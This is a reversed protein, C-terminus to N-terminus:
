AWGGNSVTTASNSLPTILLYNDSALTSSTAGTLASQFSYSPIITGATTIRLIGFASFNYSRGTSTSTSTIQYSNAISQATAVNFAGGGNGVTASSAFFTITGVATATATTPTATMTVTGGLGFSMYSSITSTSVSVSIGAEIRYTGVPLTITDNATPFLRYPTTAAYLGSLGAGSTFIAQALPARGLQTNATLTAVQGNFEVAGASPTTLFTGGNVGFSMPPLTTSSSNLNLSKAAYVSSPGVSFVTADNIDFVQFLNQGAAQNATTDRIDLISGSNNTLTGVALNGNFAASTVSLGGAAVTGLATVTGNSGVKLQSVGNKQIDFLTANSVAPNNIVLPITSSNQATITQTTTPNLVVGGPAGNSASTIRGKSDVTLNTNTYSGATVTTAILVPNPFTGTLDGGATGTPTRADSLRSDATTVATGTVQSPGITLLTQDIGIQAATTTGTNTIPSTVGIIGSSGAAGAPGTAGTSGTDGQIGQPGVGSVTLTPVIPQVIISDAM